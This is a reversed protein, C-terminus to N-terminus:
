LVLNELSSSKNNNDDNNLPLQIINMLGAMSLAQTV